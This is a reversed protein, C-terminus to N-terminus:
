NQMFIRANTTSYRQKKNRKLAATKKKKFERKNIIKFYIKSLDGRENTNLFQSRQLFLHVEPFFRVM